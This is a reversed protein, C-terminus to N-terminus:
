LQKRHWLNIRSVHSPALERCEDTLHVHLHFYCDLALILFVLSCDEIMVLTRDIVAITVRPFLGLGEVGVMSRAM